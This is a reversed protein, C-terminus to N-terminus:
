SQINLSLLIEGDPTKYVLVESLVLDGIDHGWIGFKGNTQNRNYLKTRKAVPITKITASKEEIEFIKFYEESIARLLEARTFGTKSELIFRHEHTLPYDILITIKPESIIVSERDMLKPIDAEPKEISAWPIL